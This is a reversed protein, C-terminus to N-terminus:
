TWQGAFMSAVMKLSLELFSTLNKKLNREIQSQSFELKSRWQGRDRRM